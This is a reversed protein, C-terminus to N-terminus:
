ENWNSSILESLSLFSLIWNVNSYISLKSLNFSGNNKLDNISSIDFSFISSYVFKNNSSYEFFLLFM